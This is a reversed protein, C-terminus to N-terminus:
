RAPGTEDDSRQHRIIEPSKDDVMRSGPTLREGTADSEM